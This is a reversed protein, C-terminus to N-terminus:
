TYIRDVYRSTFAALVAGYSLGFELRGGVNLPTKAETIDIVLHDSSAGVIEVGDLMPTLGDQSIDQRGVAVLARRRIGRDEYQVVEGFANINIKGEPHSPKEAIEIIEADLICVDTKLGPFTEGYATEKGCIISEGLRLNNIAAPMEGKSFIDLSSSNGGSIVSLKIDYKNSIDDAIQCLKGLNEPTPLVSGYCTLNTGIGELTLNPQNLIFEITNYIQENNTHYIGERLDGLDIMLVVGHKVGMTAAAKSLADLTAMESNLSIDCATIVKMAESPSPLRLLVTKQTVEDPYSAINEIRSDALYDMPLAALTQVMKKDACFVKTVAAVSIGKAHCMDILFKANHELKQLDIILKPNM